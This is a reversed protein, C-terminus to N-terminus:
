STLGASAGFSFSAPGSFSLARSSLL